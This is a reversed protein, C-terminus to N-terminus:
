LEEKLISLIKNSSFGDGFSEYSVPIRKELDLVLKIKEILHIDSPSILNNWNNELTEHWETEDRLTICPTQSFFAEKQLGGSDTIVCKANSLFDITDFYSIPAIIEIPSFDIELKDAIIRTRPHLPFVVKYFKAISKISEIIKRFIDHNDTNEARHLTLFIFDNNLFKYKKTLNKQEIKKSFYLYNDLMIDGVFWSKGTVKEEALNKLSDITPCFLYDSLNDTVIRNIEEPMAYRYSRLGSEVHAIKIPIKSAVLSGAITSNTDGYVLLLDPKEKLIIEELGIMIKATQLAHSHSGVNLNYKPSPISLEGFFSDSMNKDYHQGTHVIIEDFDSFIKNNRIQRSIASAKIFQPRAGLITLIKL